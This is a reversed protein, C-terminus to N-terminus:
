VNYQLKKELKNQSFAEWEQLLYKQFKHQKLINKEKFADVRANKLVVHMAHELM